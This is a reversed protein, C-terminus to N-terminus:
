SGSKIAVWSGKAACDIVGDGDTDLGLFASGDIVDHDLYQDHYVLGGFQAYMTGAPHAHQGAFTVGGNRDVMGYFREDSSGSVGFEMALSPVSGQVQMAGIWTESTQSLNEASCNDDYFAQAFSTTWSGALDPVNGTDTGDGDVDGCANDATAGSEDGGHGCGALLALGLGLGPLIPLLRANM